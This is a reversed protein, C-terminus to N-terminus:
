AVSSGIALWGQGDWQALQGNILRQEGVQAPGVSTATTTTAPQRAPDRPVATGVTTPTTGPIAIPAPATLPAVPVVAPPANVVTQNGQAYGPIGLGAGLMSLASAGAARYPGLNAQTTNYAQSKQNAQAVNLATNTNYMQTQVALADEAAKLQDASATGAASSQLYSGLLGLGGSLLGGLVTPSTLSQAFGSGSTGAVATAPASTGTWAPSTALSGTPVNAGAPSTLSAVPDAAASTDAISSGVYGPTGADAAAAGGVESTAPVTAGAGIDAPATALPDSV